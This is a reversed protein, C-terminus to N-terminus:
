QLIRFEWQFLVILTSLIIPNQSRVFEIKCKPNWVVTCLKMLISHSSRGCSPPCVSTVSAPSNMIQGM